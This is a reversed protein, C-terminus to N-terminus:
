EWVNTFQADKKAGAAGTCFSDKKANGEALFLGYTTGLTLIINTHRALKQEDDLKDDNSLVIDNVGKAYKAQDLKFGDCVRAVAAQYALTNLVALQQPTLVGELDEFADKWAEDLRNDDAQAFATASALLSFATAALAGLFVNIKKTM